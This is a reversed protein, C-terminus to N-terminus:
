AITEGWLIRVTFRTRFIRRNDEVEDLPAANVVMTHWFRPGMTFRADNLIRRVEWDLLTLAHKYGTAGFYASAPSNDPVWTDVYVTEEYKRFTDGVNFTMERRPGRTVTVFPKTSSSSYWGTSFVTSSYTSGVDQKLRYYVVKAPDDEDPVYVHEDNYVDQIESQTLWRNYVRLEDVRGLYPNSSVNRLGVRLTNWTFTGTAAASAQSVGNTFLHRTHGNYRAAVHVWAGTSFTTVSDLAGVATGGSKFVARVVGGTHLARVYDNGVANLSLALENPDGINSPRLWCAITFSAGPAPTSDPAIRDDVGDFARSRGVQGARDATGTITGDNSGVLDRMKGSRLSFMDYHLILGSTAATAPM